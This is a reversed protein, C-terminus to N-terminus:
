PFDFASSNGCNLLLLETILVSDIGVELNECGWESRSYTHIEDIGNVIFFHMKTAKRM